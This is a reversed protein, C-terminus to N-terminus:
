FANLFRASEHDVEDYNYGSDPCATVTPPRWRCEDSSGNEEMRVIVTPKPTAGFRSVRDKVVNAVFWM